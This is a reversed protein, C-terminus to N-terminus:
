SDGCRKNAFIRCSVSFVYVSFGVTHDPSPWPDLNRLGVDWGLGVWGGDSYYVLHKVM